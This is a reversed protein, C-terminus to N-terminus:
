RAQGSSASQRVLNSRNANSRRTPDPSPCPRLAFDMARQKDSKRNCYKLVVDRAEWCVHSVLPVKNNVISTWVFTCDGPRVAFEPINLEVVRNPLAMAWIM